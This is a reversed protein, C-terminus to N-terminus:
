NAPVYFTLNAWLSEWVVNKEAAIAAAPERLVVSDVQYRHDPKVAITARGEDDTRTLFIEVAGDPAKEFVEVQTDAQPKGEYLVRVDVGDSTEGTYPNELAVIETLLGAEIDEGAGDGVAILSKAYRSYVEGVDGEPLGRARHEDLTWAADKHEVFDVFDQWDAWRIFYDTTEHIVTVLGEGPAPMALAPRDGVTGPVNAIEDNFAYDFRKFRMPLYSYSSGEYETGVRLAAQIEDDPAVMFEVPDIWFEHAKAVPAICALCVTLTLLRNM